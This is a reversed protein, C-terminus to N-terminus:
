VGDGEEDDDDADGEVVGGGVADGEGAVGVGDDRTGGRAGLEERGVADGDDACDGNGDEEGDEVDEEGGGEGEVLDEGSSIPAPM